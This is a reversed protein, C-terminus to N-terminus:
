TLGILIMIQMSNVSPIGDLTQYPFLDCTHGISPLGTLPAKNAAVRSWIMAMATELAETSLAWTMDNANVEVQDDPALHALATATTPNVVTLLHGAVSISVIRTTKVQTGPVTSAAKLYSSTWLWLSEPSPIPSTISPCLVMIDGTVKIRGQPSMLTATKIHGHASGGQSIHTSRVFALALAKNHTCVLSVFVDGIVFNDGRLLHGTELDSSRKNVSTYGHVRLLRVTSKPSFDPTILLRCVSQKHVWKCEDCLLYDEIHVGPGSLPATPSHTNSM